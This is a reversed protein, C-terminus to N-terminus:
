GKRIFSDIFKIYPSYQQQMCVPRTCWTSKLVYVSTAHLRKECASVRMMTAISSTLSHSSHSWSHTLCAVICCHYQCIFAKKWATVGIVWPISYTHRHTTEMRTTVTSSTHLNDMTHTKLVNILQTNKKTPILLFLCFLLQLHNVAYCVYSWFISM